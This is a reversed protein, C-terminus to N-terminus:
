SSNSKRRESTGHFDEKVAGMKVPNAFLKCNSNLHLYVGKRASNGMPSFRLTRTTACELATTMTNSEIFFISNRKM